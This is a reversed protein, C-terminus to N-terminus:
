YCHGIDLRLFIFTLRGIALNRGSSAAQGDVRLMPPATRDGSVTSPLEFMVIDLVEREAIEVVDSAREIEVGNVAMDYTATVKVRGLSCATVLFQVSIDLVRQLRM